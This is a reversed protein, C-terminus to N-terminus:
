CSLFLTMELNVRRLIADSIFIEDCHMEVRWDFMTSCCRFLIESVYNIM